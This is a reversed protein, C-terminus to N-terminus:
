PKARWSPERRELFAGIGEQAEKGVRLAALTTAAHEDAFAADHRNDSIERLFRKAAAAAEPGVQAFDKELRTRAAALGAEGDAIEHVLGAVLARAADFRVASLVLSRAHSLGIKALVFPGIVAPILGLRAESLSFTTGREAVVHDCVAALGVGGGIAAGHVLGVVPKAIGDIARLMRSLRRADELNEERSLGLSARMWNLDGGACFATGEGRLVVLRVEARSDVYAAVDTLERILEANFANKVEPRHLSVTLVPGDESVRTLSCAFSM